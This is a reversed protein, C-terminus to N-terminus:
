DPTETPAEKGHKAQALVRRIREQNAKGESIHRLVYAIVLEADDPNIKILSIAKELKTAAQDMHETTDGALDDSEELAWLAKTPWRQYQMKM